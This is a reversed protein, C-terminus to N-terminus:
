AEFGGHASVRPRVDIIFYREVDTSSVIAQGMDLSRLLGSLPLDTSGHRVESPESSKLNRRVQEIDGQVALKHVILTDVQSMIQSEIASPQQTTFIFSLGFNRGEKVLRILASLCTAGRGSPVVNQAEDVGVWTPPVSEKLRGEIARQEEASLTPDIKARKKDFSAESRARMIRRVLVAVLVARLEESLSGTLLVSLKGPALLDTLGTGLESFVQNRNWYTLQQVVARVTEPAYSQSIENDNRVCDLMDSISYITKPDHRGSAGAWGDERVKQYADNLLQGMRDQLIDLSLLAGWDAATFDATNLRFDSFSEPMGPTRHGAPVWVQVELDEPNIDWGKLTRSQDRLADSPSEPSLKFITTWYINLTDFLLIARKGSIKSVSTTPKRTCLSEIISGLTFSKGSGRKGVIAVVHEGSVDFYVKKSPGLEALRGLYITEDQRGRPDGFVYQNATQALPPSVKYKKM